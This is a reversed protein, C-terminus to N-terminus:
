VVLVATSPKLDGATVPFVPAAQFGIHGTVRTDECADAFLAQLDRRLEAPLEVHTRVVIDLHPQAGPARRMLGDVQVVGLMSLDCEVVFRRESDPKQPDAGKRQRGYVRLTALGDQHLFPIPWMQWDGGREVRTAIDTLERDLADLLPQGGTNAVAEATEKGLAATGDGRTAAALFAALQIGLKPGPRPLTDPLAARQEPSTARNLHVQVAHFAPLDRWRDLAPAAAALSSQAPQPLESELAFILRDGSELTGIGAPLTLALRGVPTDIMTQGAPTTGMVIAPVPEPPKQVPPRQGPPAQAATADPLIVLTDARRFPTSPRPTADSARPSVAPQLLAPRMPRGPVGEPAGAEPLDPVAGPAEEGAADTPPAPPSSTAAVSAPRVPIQVLRLKLPTGPVLFAAQPLQAIQASQESGGLRAVVTAILPPSAAVSTARAIPNAPPEAGVPIRQAASPRPEAAGAASGTSGGPPRALPFQPEDPAGTAPAPPKSSLVVARTQGSHTQMEVTVATGPPLQNPLHVAVTQGGDLRLFTMGSRDHAVVLGKLLTGATFNRMEAVLRSLDATTTAAAANPTAAIGPPSGLITSM